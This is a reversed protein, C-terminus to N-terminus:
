GLVRTTPRGTCSLYRLVRKLKSLDEETPTQVRSWLFTVSVLLDPRVCLSLYLLSSVTTHPLDRTDSSLTQSSPDTKFLDVGAPARSTASVELKSLTNEVYKDM